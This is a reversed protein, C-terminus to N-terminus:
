LIKLYDMFGIGSLSVAILTVPSLFNLKLNLVFFGGIVIISIVVALLNANKGDFESVLTTAMEKSRKLAQKFSEGKRKVPILLYLYFFLSVLFFSSMGFFFYDLLSFNTLGSSLFPFIRPLIAQFFFKQSLIFLFSIWIILFWIYLMLRAKPVFPTLCFFLMVVLPILSVQFIINAGFYAYIVYSFLMSFLLLKFEDLKVLIKDKLLISEILGFLLISALFHVAFNYAKEYRFPFFGFLSFLFGFLTTKTFFNKRSILAIQLLFGLSFILLPIDSSSPNKIGRIFYLLPVLIAILLFLVAGIGVIEDVKSM